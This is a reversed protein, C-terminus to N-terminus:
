FEGGKMLNNYRDVYETTEYGMKVCILENLMYLMQIAAESGVNDMSYKDAEFEDRIDRTLLTLEQLLNTNKKTLKIKGLEVYVNWMYKIGKNYHGHAYHGAEHYIMAQQVKEPFAYFYEDVAIFTNFPVIVVACYYIGYKNIDPICHINVEKGNVNITDVKNEKTAKVDVKNEMAYKYYAIMGVLGYFLNKIKMIMGGKNVGHLTAM